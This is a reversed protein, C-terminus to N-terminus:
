KKENGEGLDRQETKWEEEEKWKKEKESESRIGKRENGRNSRIM